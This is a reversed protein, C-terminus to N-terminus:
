SSRRIRADLLNYVWASFTAGEAAVLNLHHRLDRPNFQSTKLQDHVVAMKLLLARGTMDPSPQTSLWTLRVWRVATVGTTITWASQYNQRALALAIVFTAGVKVAEFALNGIRKFDTLIAAKMSTKEGKIVSPAPMGMFKEKSLVRQAFGLCEAYMLADILMWELTQSRLRPNALLNFALEELAQVNAWLGKGLADAQEEGSAIVHRLDFHQWLHDYSNKFKRAEDKGRLDVVAAFEAASLEWANDCKNGSIELEFPAKFAQRLSDLIEGIAEACQARSAEDLGGEAASAALERVIRGVQGIFNEHFYRNSFRDVLEQADQKEFWPGPWRQAPVVVLDTLVSPFAKAKGLALTLPQAPGPTRWTLEVFASTVGWLANFESSKLYVTLQCTLPTSSDESSVFLNTKDKDLEEDTDSAGLKPVSDYPYLFLAVRGVSHVRDTQIRLPNSLYLEGHLCPRRDEGLPTWTQSLTRCVGREPASWPYADPM